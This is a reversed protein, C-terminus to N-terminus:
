DSHSYHLFIQFESPNSEIEKLLQTAIKMHGLGPDLFFCEGSRSHDVLFDGLSAHFFQVPKYGQERPPPVYIISHLDSLVM